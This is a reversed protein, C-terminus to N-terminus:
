QTCTPNTLVCYVHNSAAPTCTGGGTYTYGNIVFEEVGTATGTSGYNWTGPTDTTVGGVVFVVSNAVNPESLQDPWECSGDPGAQCGDNLFWGASIGATASAPCAQPVCSTQAITAQISSTVASGNVYDEAPLGGADVTVALTVGNLTVTGTYLCEDTTVFGPSNLTSNAITCAVTETQTTGGVTFNFVISGTATFRSTTPGTRMNARGTTPDFTVTDYPTATPTGGFPGDQMSVVAVSWAGSGSKSCTNSVCSNVEGIRGGTNTWATWASTLPAPLTTTGAPCSYTVTDTRTQTQTWTDSGTEGAPCAASGPITQTQTNTVTAPCAACSGTTGTIQAPGFVPTATASACTSYQTTTDIILGFQGANCPVNQQPGAQSSVTCCTGTAVCSTQCTNSVPTVPGFGIAGSPSCTIDQQTTIQGGEGAPCPQTGSIVGPSCSTGGPAIPATCDDSITSWSGVVPAGAVCTTIQQQEIRGVQGASCALSRFATSPSCASPPPVAVIPAVPVTPAVACSSSTTTWASWSLTPCPAGTCTGSRTQRVQGVESAPCALTQTQTQPNCSATCTPAGAMAGAGQKPKYYTLVVQGGASTLAACQTAVVSADIIQGTSVATQSVVSETSAGITIAYADGAVAPVLNVCQTATLKPYVVQFADDAVIVTAPRITLADGFESVIQAGSIDVGSVGQQAVQQASIGTYAGTMAYMGRVGDVLAALQTQEKQTAAQITNRQFFKLVGFVGLSLIGLVLMIELLTYAHARRM